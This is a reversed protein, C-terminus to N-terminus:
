CRLTSILRHPKLLLDFATGIDTVVADAATLADIAAGEGQMVAVGLGAAALMLRDNRGNGICACSRADLNEVYALKAFDQRETPIVVLDCPLGALSQRATGLTDSTVVHLSLDDALRRLAKAIAPLLTGDEALTGNFDLVLHQLQLSKWGPIIIKLMPM